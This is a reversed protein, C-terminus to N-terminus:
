AAVKLPQQKEVWDTFQEAEADIGRSAMIALRVLAGTQHDNLCRNHGLMMDHEIIELVVGIGAAANRVAGALQLAPRSNITVNEAGDKHWEFSQFASESKTSTSQKKAM